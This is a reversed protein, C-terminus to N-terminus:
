WVETRKEAELVMADGAQCGFAQAFAPVNMLPGIVRWRPLSHVDTMARLRAFEPRLLNRWVQGYSLFFRQESTFGDVAAPAPQGALSLKWAEYALSVGGLDGLNEGLTFRGNVHITDIAIFGDYQDVLKQTRAEFEKTDEPTWWDRLNGEADYKRGQDDFGHTMEHGIVAGIAGYNAADDAQPDFMPPQLIGAPFCIENTPPNYYANVTAATMLWETRDVPQGIKALQRRYEFLQARRLNAVAPDKPDVTLASYDRWTDPYGIKPLFADLKKLAQRKTAAGMWPRTEIRRQLARRLNGVMEDMRAKSAPPFETAVYAKGLAEGMAGDVADACRKWRPTPVKQGTLRANFAFAEGFAAQGLWPLAARATHFRLYARWDQLPTTEILRGLQRVFVPMSVDVPADARALSPVGAENFFAPWDLAPCLARLEKVTMKHYLKEPERQETVSLSSEALATELRMIRPAVERAAGSAMGTLMLVREIHAVYERRLTDSKADDRFYYDRDPLGLGGQWLQAINMTSQGPDAEVGFAFPSYGDPHAFERRLDEKTAIQEIREIDAQVPEMGERDARTSDMLVAYLWGLKRLTPDKEGAARAAANELVRTLAVQNRDNIEFGMGYAPYAAPIETTALWTGNAYQFFDRCPSCTTDMYARQPGPTQAAALAPLAVLLLALLRAPRLPSRDM